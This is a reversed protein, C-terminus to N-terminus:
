HITRPVTDQLSAALQKRANFMRSKVIVESVGVIEAVEKISRDHYYVLDVVEAHVPSLKASYQGLVDADHQRQLAVGPNEAPDVVTARM